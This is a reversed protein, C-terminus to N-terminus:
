GHTSERSSHSKGTMVRYSISRSSELKQAPYLEGTVRSKLKVRLILLRDVHERAKENKRRGKM